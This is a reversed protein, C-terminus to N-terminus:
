LGIQHQRARLFGVRDKEGLGQHAGLRLVGSERWAEPVCQGWGQPLEVGFLQGGVRVPADVGIGLQDGLDALDQDALHALAVAFGAQVLSHEVVRGIM